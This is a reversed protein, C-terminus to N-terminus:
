GKHGTLERFKETYDEWWTFDENPWVHHLLDFLRRIKESSHHTQQELHADILEPLDLRWGGPARDVRGRAYGHLDSPGRNIYIVTNLKQYAQIKATLVQQDCGWRKYFDDSKANPYKAFDRHLDDLTSGTLSMLKVWEEKPGAVFCMPIETFGTLDHNYVTMVDASPKWHNGLPILDIDGLMVMDGDNVSEAGYLRVVQAITAELIGPLTGLEFACENKLAL